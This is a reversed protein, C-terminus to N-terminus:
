LTIYFSQQVLGTVSKMRQSCLLLIDVMVLMGRQFKTLYSGHTHLQNPVLMKLFKITLFFGDARPTFM